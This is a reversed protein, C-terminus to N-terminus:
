DERTGSEPQLHPQCLDCDVESHVSISIQLLWHRSESGKGQWQQIECHPALFCKEERGLLPLFFFPFFFPFLRTEVSGGVLLANHKAEAGSKTIFKCPTINAKALTTAPCCSAHRCWSRSRQQLVPRPLIRRAGQPMPSSMSPRQSVEPPPVGEELTQSTSPQRKCEFTAIEANTAPAPLQTSLRRFLMVGHLVRANAPVRLM